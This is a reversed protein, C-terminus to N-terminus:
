KMSERREQETILLLDKNSELTIKNNKILDKVTDTLYYNNYITIGKSDNGKIDIGIGRTPFTLKLNQNEADYDFEFYSYWRTTFDSVLKDLDGTNCYDLLYQDFYENAKYKYPYVSVEDEYFFVYEQTTRYGLYGDKISGFPAKKFREEIEKLDTKVYTNVAIEEEYGKDFVLNLVKNTRMFAKLHDTPYYYYGNPLLERDEATVLVTNAFAMNRAQLSNYFDNSVNMPTDSVIKTNEIDVYIEGNTEEYFDEVDNITVEFKEKEKDYRVFIKLNKSEDILYFSNKELDVIQEIIDDFFKENSKGDDEYLNKAFNAYIEIYVSRKLDIYISGSNEIIEKVSKAAKKTTNTGTSVSINNNANSQKEENSLANIYMELIVILVLLLLIMLIIIFNAKKKRAKM